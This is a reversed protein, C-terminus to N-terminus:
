RAQVRRRADGSASPPPAPAPVEARASAAAPSILIQMLKRDQVPTFEATQDKMGKFIVVGSNTAVLDGPRLTPDSKADMPVLGGATQGNCTCSQVLQKRYLLANPLDAYRKGDSAVASDISSGAFVKTQSAPCFSSCARAPSLGANQVPFPRGDCLRVCYAVSPGREARSEGSDPSGFADSLAKFLPAPSPPAEMRRGGGFLMEFISAASATGTPALSTLLALSIVLLASHRVRHNRNRSM